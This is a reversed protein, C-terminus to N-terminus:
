GTGVFCGVLSGTLMYPNCAHLESNLSKTLANTDLQDTLNNIECYLEDPANTREIHSTAKMIDCDVWTLNQSFQFVEMGVDAEVKIYKKM